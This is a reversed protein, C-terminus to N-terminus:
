HVLAKARQRRGIGGVRLDPAAACYSCHASVGLSSFFLQPVQRPPEAARQAAAVQTLVQPCQNFTQRVHRRVAQNRNPDCGSRLAFPLEFLGGWFRKLLDNKPLALLQGERLKYLTGKQALRLSYMSVTGM